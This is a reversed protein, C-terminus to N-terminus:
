TDIKLLFGFYPDIVKENTNQRVRVVTSRTQQEEYSETVMNTPSDETWLFTRGVSPMSPDSDAPVYAVMAYTDSWIPSGSYATGGEPSTNYVGSGVLIQELGLINALANKVFTETAVQAYQIRGVIQTNVLLNNYMNRSIVLSNAEMGTNAFVKAKAAAVDAIVTAAVNDWDTSVDLYLSAGTWVATDFLLTSIRIEQERLLTYMIKKAVNMEADFDNMYRRRQKQGVQGELGHEVCAFTVDETKLGVRNYKSVDGRKTDARATLTERVVASYTGGEVDVPTIPLIQTGIYKDLSDVYEQLAVGLDARPVGYTAQDIGVIEGKL